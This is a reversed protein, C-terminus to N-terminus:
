GGVRRRVVEKSIENEDAWEIVNTEVNTLKMTLKYYVESTRGAQGTISSLNGYLMYEAGIVSGARAATDPNVLGLDASGLDFEKIADELKARDVFRFKGSRILHTSMTDLLSETDIHETTKNAIPLVMLVPRRTATVQQIPPFAILSDIMSNAMQHLDDKSYQTSVNGMQGPDKYSGSPTSTCGGMALGAACALATMTMAQKMM